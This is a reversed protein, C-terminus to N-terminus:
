TINNVFTANEENDKFNLNAFEGFYKITARDRIIAAEKPDDFMGLFLTKKNVKIQAFYKTTGTRISVGLYGSVGSPYVNMSNQSKTCNRLNSKQNNLGNHDKHDVDMERPTNMIVRHMRINKQVGDTFNFSMAYYTNGVKKANWRWQMLYDFDEDDVLAVYKGKNKGQQSLKIEKMQTFYFDEPKLLATRVGRPNFVKIGARIPCLSLIKKHSIM